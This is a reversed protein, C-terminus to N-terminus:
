MSIVEADCEEATTTTDATNNANPRVATPIRGYCYGHDAFADLDVYGGGFRVDEVLTALERKLEGFSPRRGPDHHWCRSALRFFESRCHPPRELRGGERVLRVVERASQGPYPTSGLTVIEWILIGFSWVDSKHTFIRYLLSEPAMWRIPLAGKTNRQEYVDGLDQVSRSMGFDAVKCM